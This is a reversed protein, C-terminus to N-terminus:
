RLDYLCLIAAWGSPMMQPPDPLEAYKVAMELLVKATYFARRDIEIPAPGNWGIGTIPDEIALFQGKVGHRGDADRSLIECFDREEPRLPAKQALGEYNGADCDNFIFSKPVPLLYRYMRDNQASGTMTLYTCRLDQMMPLHAYSIVSQKLHASLRCAAIVNPREYLIM